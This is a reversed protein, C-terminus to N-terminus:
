ASCNVCNEINIAKRKKIKNKKNSSFKLINNSKKNNKIKQVEKVNIGFQIPDVSPVTRLYYMGTKLGGEWSYFHASTLKDFNSENMSFNLSQSQDIFPGREISQTILSKLGLEYSTKYIDKIKNPICDIDKISGNMVIIQKRLDESWLELNILDNILNKNIVIFEGALTTRTYVNSLYPDISESNGMIQSTSATPMLATTLSNRLGYKKIDNVLTIWDYNGSLDDETLGWLHYQLLGKSAPSGSFSSYAGKEKAIKNSTLMSSYYLTEFILKNLKMAETSDFPYGMINYTDALGQVGIGIPRHKLNSNKAKDTPYFNKDIIIDLNRIIVDIVKIMKDFNFIKKSNKTEIFKPLCISALNCVSTTDKDTYEIIETCLNSCKITGLNKQNSKRNAHDKFLMYPMGTEIQSELIHYWLNVADVQEKYKGKQEYRVYLEEFKDGYSDTLGPCEDPCMLSWKGGKKVRKMFLDPVWLATFLDRAKNTEDKTNKRLECFKYIDAHWPEIYVSISGNRKGGQNVYKAEMNLLQCLPIIGDSEGNTKRILSGQARIDSLTVAIGGAWKSIKAIDSITEFIGNISDEMGLLYCSSMQSRESGSNFLTPTAHTFYKHSILDYTEFVKELNNGHIGLSIRMILHQPREIIKNVKVIKNNKKIYHLRYLYSRELTKLAFYDFYYDRDYDFKNQIIIHNDSVIDFLEKSVLPSHNGNVDINNYLIYVVTKFDSDTNRHLSDICIKSALVNYDPHYSTKEMCYNAIFDYLEKLSMKKPLYKIIEKSLINPNIFNNDLNKCWDNLLQIIFENTIDIIVNMNEQISIQNINLDM